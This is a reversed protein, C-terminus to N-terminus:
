FTASAPTNAEDPADFFDAPKFGLIGSMLNIPFSQVFTNYRRVIANYQTRAQQIADEVEVLQHQLRNFNDSAKLDPYAEAVAYLSMLSSTLQRETAAKESPTGAAEARSRAETVQTFTASEHTAYGKVTSVLNPILEHRRNLQVEINAWVERVRNRGRVLMNYIRIIWPVVFMLVIVVVLGIVFYMEM